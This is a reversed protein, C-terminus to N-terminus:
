GMHMCVRGASTTNFEVKAQATMSLQYFAVVSATYISSEQLDNFSVSTNTTTVQTLDRAM